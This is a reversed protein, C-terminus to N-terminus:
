ESIVFDTLGPQAPFEYRFGIGDNFARVV